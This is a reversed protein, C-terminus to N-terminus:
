SYQGKLMLGNKEEQGRNKGSLFGLAFFPYSFSLINQLHVLPNIM